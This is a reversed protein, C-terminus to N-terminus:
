LNNKDKYELWKKNITDASDKDSVGILNYFQERILKNVFETRTISEIKGSKASEIFTIKEINKLYDTIDADIKFTIAYNNNKNIGNAKKVDDYNVKIVSKDSTSKKNSVDKKDDKTLIDEINEKSPAIFGNILGESVRQIDEKKSM